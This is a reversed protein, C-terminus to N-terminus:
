EAFVEELFLQFHAWSRRDAAEDYAVGEIGHGDAAPNTFSHVAGGYVILQWDAGAAELADRLSAITEDGIFADSGGHCILIRAEIAAAEEESPVPLSGHFSAVGVLKEGGYALQLATAGGFCYGMAVIRDGDVREHGALVALGARARARWGDINARVAGAWQGAEKPHETVKGKGYMDLAFAVYGLAALQRARRRAYEDHGWWEHVILVGPRPGEIADDYALFGELTQGDHEYEVAETTVEALAVGPLVLALALLRTSRM